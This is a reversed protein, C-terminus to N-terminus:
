ESSVKAKLWGSGWQRKVPWPWHVFLVRVVLGPLPCLYLDFRLLHRRWRVGVMLETPHWESCVAKLQWRKEAV